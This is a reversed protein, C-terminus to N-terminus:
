GHVNSMHLACAHVEDVTYSPFRRAFEELAVRSELRALSAGLCFHLATGSRWTRSPKREVDFRDPDPFEREDRNASGTLLLHAIGEAGDRRVV